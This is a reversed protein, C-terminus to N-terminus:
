CSGAPNCPPPTTIFHYYNAAQHAPSSWFFISAFLPDLRTLFPGKSTKQNEIELKQRSSNELAAPNRRSSKKQGDEPALWTWGPLRYSRSGPRTVIPHGALVKNWGVPQVGGQTSSFNGAAPLKAIQKASFKM